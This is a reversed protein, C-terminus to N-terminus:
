KKSFFSFKYKTSMLHEIVYQYPEGEIVKEGELPYWCTKGAYSDAVDKWVTGAQVPVVRGDVLHLEKYTTRIRVKPNLFQGPFHHIILV